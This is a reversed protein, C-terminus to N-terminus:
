HVKEIAIIWFRGKKNTKQVKKMFWFLYVNIKKDLPADETCM